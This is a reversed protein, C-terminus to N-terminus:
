VERNTPLTLQTNSVPSLSAACQFPKLTSRLCYQEEIEGSEFIINNNEDIVVCHIKHESEQLKGRKVVCRVNKKM